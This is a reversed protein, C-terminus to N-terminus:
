EINCLIYIYVNKFLFKIQLYCSDVLLFPIKSYIYKHISCWLFMISGDAIPTEYQNTLMFIRRTSSNCCLVPEPTQWCSGHGRGRRPRLPELTETESVSSERGLSTLRGVGGAGMARMSYPFRTVQSPAIHHSVQPPLHPPFGVAQSTQCFRTCFVIARSVVTM